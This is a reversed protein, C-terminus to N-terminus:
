HERVRDGPPLQCHSAIAPLYAAALILILMVRRRRSAEAHCAILIIGGGRPPPPQCLNVYAVLDRTGPRGAKTGCVPSRRPLCIFVSIKRGSNTQFRNSNYLTPPIGDGRGPRLRKPVPRGPINSESAGARETAMRGENRWPPVFEKRRNGIPEFAGALKRCGKLSHPGGWITLANKMCRVIKDSNRCLDYNTVVAISHTLSSRYVPSPCGGGGLSRRPLRIFV